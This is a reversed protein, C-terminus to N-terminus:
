STDHCPITNNPPLTPWPEPQLRSGQRLLSELQGQWLAVVHSIWGRRFLSVTRPRCVSASDAHASDAHASDAHASDAHASDAEDEAQSGETVVRLTAVALVLWQRAARTADQIRSRQWQWGERKTLKFGHEIWARLGYGCVPWHEPALDTLVLWPEGCGRATYVGLTCALRRRGQFAEGRVSGCGELRRVVCALAESHAQGHLRFTGGGNIRLAPHWGLRVIRRFLWPAYLGRDALVLVCYTDPVAPRLRRLLRLWHPRWAAPQNAPLVHWAVPIACGRYLVSICLVVFRDHLTTADLALALQTGQWEQLVWRLLPAFCAEVEISQRRAGRKHAAEYYFERLQQRVTNHRRGLAQALLLSVCSLSCSRTLVVGLSWLALVYAQPASLHPLHQRLITQWQYVTDRCTM